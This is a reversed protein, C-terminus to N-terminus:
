CLRQARRTASSPDIYRSGFNIIIIPIALCFLALLRWNPILMALLAILFIGLSYTLQLWMVM